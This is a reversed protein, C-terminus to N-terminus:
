TELIIGHFIKYILLAFFYIIFKPTIKIEVNKDKYKISLAPEFGKSAFMKEHSANENGTNINNVTQM